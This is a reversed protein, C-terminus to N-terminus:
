LEGCYKDLDVCLAYQVINNIWADFRKNDGKNEYSQKTKFNEFIDKPLVFYINIDSDEDLVKKIARLGDQKVGHRRSVTVQFMKNPYVYSDISEFTDSNPRYYNKQGKQIDDKIEDISWFFKEELDSDFEEFVKPETGKTTLKRVSFKGGRRLIEHSILEFLQGRLASMEKMNRASEIFTRLEEKKHKKLQDLCKNGAFKSAFLCISDTYPNETDELNTHIQIIKHSFEHGFFLKAQSDIICSDISQSASASVIMNRIKECSMKSDFIWRPIGGCLDFKTKIEEKTIKNVYLNDWCKLLEDENWTPMYLTECRPKDFDAIIERKPSSVMIFKGETWDHSVQPKKGDIICWTENKALLKYEESNVKFSVGQPDIYLTCDKCDILVPKKSQLLEVLMLRGFYTKGIGPNGTILFRNHSKNNLIFKRFYDYCGRNYIEMTSVEGPLPPVHFVQQNTDISSLVDILHKIMMKDKKQAEILKKKIAQNNNSGGSFIEGLYANPLLNDGDLENKITTNEKDRDRSRNELKKLRDDGLPLDVKWLSLKNADIRQSEFDNKNQDYILRRFESVSINSDGEVEFANEIKNGVVFCFVM